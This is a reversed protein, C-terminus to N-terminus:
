FPCSVPAGDNSMWSISRNERAISFRFVVGGIPFAAGVPMMTALAKAWPAGLCLRRGFHPGGLRNGGDNNNDQRGVFARGSPCRRAPQVCLLRVAADAATGELSTVCPVPSVRGRVYCQRMVFGNGSASALELV